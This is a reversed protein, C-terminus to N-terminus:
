SPSLALNSFGKSKGWKRRQGLIRRKRVLVGRYEVGPDVDLDMTGLTIITLRAVRRDIM